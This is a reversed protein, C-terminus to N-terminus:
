TSVLRVQGASGPELKLPECGKRAVIMQSFAARMSRHYDDSTQRVTYPVEDQTSSFTRVLGRDPSLLVAIGKLHDQETIRYVSLPAHATDLGALWASDLTGAELEESTADVIYHIRIDDRADRAQCKSMLDLTFLIESVYYKAAINRYPPPWLDIMGGSEQRFLLDIGARHVIGSLYPEVDVGDSVAKVRDDDERLLRCMHRYIDGAMKYQCVGVPIGHTESEALQRALAWPQDHRRGLIALACSCVALSEMWIEYYRAHVSIAGREDVAAIKAVDHQLQEMTSGRLGCEALRRNLEQQLAAVGSAHIRGRVLGPVSGGDPVRLSALRAQIRPHLLAWRLIPDREFERVHEFSTLFQGLLKFFRRYDDVLSDRDEGFRLSQRLEKDVWQGRDVASSVIRPHESSALCAVIRALLASRGKQVAGLTMERDVSNCLAWCLDAALVFPNAGFELLEPLIDKYAREVPSSRHGAAESM